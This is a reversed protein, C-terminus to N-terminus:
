RMLCTRKSRYGQTRRTCGNARLRKWLRERHESLRKNALVVELKTEMTKEGASIRDMVKNETSLSANQCAKLVADPLPKSGAVEEVEMCENKRAEFTVALANGEQKQADEVFVVHGQWAVEWAPPLSDSGFTLWRRNKGVAKQSLLVCKWDMAKALPSLRHQPILQSAGQLRTSSSWTWSSAFPSTQGLLQQRIAAVSTPLARVVWQGTRTPGSVGCHAMGSLQRLIASPYAGQLFLPVCQLAQEEDRSVTIIMEKTGSLALLEQLAARPCDANWTMRADAPAGRRTPIHIAGSVSGLFLPLKDKNSFEGWDASTALEKDM